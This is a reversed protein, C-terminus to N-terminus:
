GTAVCLRARQDAVVVKAQARGASCHFRWPWGNPTRKLRNRVWPCALQCEAAISRLGKTLTGGSGGGGGGMDTSGGSDCKVRGGDGYGGVGISAGGGGRGVVVVVVETAAVATTSSRWERPRWRHRGWRRGGSIIVIEESVATATM